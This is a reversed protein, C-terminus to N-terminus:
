PKAVQDGLLVGAQRALEAVDARMLRAQELQEALQEGLANVQRRLRRNEARVEALANVLSADRESMPAGIGFSFGQAAMGELLDTGLPKSDISASISGDARVEATGIEMREGSELYTVLPINRIEVVPLDNADDYVEPSASSRGYVFGGQEAV